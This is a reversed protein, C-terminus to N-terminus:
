LKTLFQLTDVGDAYDTLSTLQSTGFPISDIEKHNSVVVQIDQEQTKLMNKVEDLMIYRQYFICALPSHLHEDEKVLLYGTDLHRTSNMLFIAKHYTYNNAYKNHNILDSYGETERLFQTIDYKDPVFLKTVSRCGLGFYRFIDNALNKLDQSTESGTLVAVSTRNHRILAPINRFYYSFHRATNNSGTAIVADINKLQEAVVIFKGFKPNIEALKRIVFKMMAEDNSSLKVKAKHGAALVCLLDHLGVLPINGAMVIGVMKPHQTPIVDALWTEIKEQSLALQWNALCYNLNDDTFWNNALYAQEKPWQINPNEPRLRYGLEAFAAIIEEKSLQM